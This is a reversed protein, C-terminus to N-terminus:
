AVGPVLQQAAGAVVIREQERRVEASVASDLHAAVAGTEGDLAPGAEGTDTSRGFVM